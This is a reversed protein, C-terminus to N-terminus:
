DTSGVFRGSKGITGLVPNVIEFVNGEATNGIGSAAITAGPFFRAESLSYNSSNPSNPDTSQDAYQWTCRDAPFYNDSSQGAIRGQIVLM